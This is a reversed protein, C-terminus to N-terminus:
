NIRDDCIERVSNSILLRRVNLIQNWVGVDEMCGLLKTTWTKKIRQINIEDNPNQKCRIIDELESLQQLQILRRYARGYDEQILPTIQPSLIERSRRIM